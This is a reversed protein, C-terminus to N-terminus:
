PCDSPLVAFNGLSEKAKLHASSILSVCRRSISHLGDLVPSMLGTAIKSGTSNSPVVTLRALTWLKLIMSSSSSPIPSVMSTYLAFIIMGCIAFFRVLLPIASIGFTHGTQPPAVSTRWCFSAFDKYQVLGSHWAFRTFDNASKTLLSARFTSPRESAVRSFNMACPNIWLYESIKWRSRWWSAIWVM